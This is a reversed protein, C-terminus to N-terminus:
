HKVMRSALNVTDGWIDFKPRKYGIVGIRVIIEKRFMTLGAVVPGHAIGVRLKFNYGSDMNFENLVWFLGSAFKFMTDVCM